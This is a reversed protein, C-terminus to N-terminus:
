PDNRLRVLVKKSLNADIVRADFQRTQLYDVVQSVRASKIGVQEEGIKVQIGTKMLTMSFGEKSDYRMESITKRSFSGENPIEKLVKVAKQRLPKQQLFNEGELLTVDPAQRSDVADLFSGDSIIPMYKGSKGLYVLKIDHPKIKVTLGSPWSRSISHGEIWNQSNLIAVVQSLRVAWLSQGKFTLMQKELREAMPSYFNAQSEPSDVLVVEIQNIDFFGNENLWYMSGAIMLPLVVFAVFLKLFHNKLSGDERTFETYWLLNRLHIEILHGPSQNSIEVKSTGRKVIFM